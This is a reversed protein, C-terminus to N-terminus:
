LSIFFLYKIIAGTQRAIFTNSISGSKDNVLKSFLAQVRPIRPLFEM